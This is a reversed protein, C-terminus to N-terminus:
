DDTAEVLRTSLRCNRSETLGWDTDSTPVDVVFSMEHIGDTRVLFDGYGHSFDEVHCVVTVVDHVYESDAAAEIAEAKAEYTPGIDLHATGWGHILTYASNM